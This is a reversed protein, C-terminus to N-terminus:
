DKDEDNLKPLEIRETKVIASPYEEKIEILVKEAELKTRFDGVRIEYNPNNWNLYSVFDPFKTTFDTQRIRANNRSNAGSESYIIITYGPVKPDDKSAKTYAKDMEKIDTSVSIKLFGPQRLGQALETKVPISDTLIGEKGIGSEQAKERAKPFTKWGQGFSVIPFFAVVLFIVVRM